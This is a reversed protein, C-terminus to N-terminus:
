SSGSGVDRAPDPAAGPEAHRQVVRGRQWRWAWLCTRALVWVILGLGGGTIVGGVASWLYPYPTDEIQVLGFLFSVSMRLSEKPVGSFGPQRMGEKFGSSLTDAIEHALQVDRLTPITILLSGVIVCVALWLWRSRLWRQIM